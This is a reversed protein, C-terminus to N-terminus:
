SSCPRLRRQKKKKYRNGLPVKSQVNKEPSSYVHRVDYKCPRSKVVRPFRRGVRRQNLSKLLQQKRRHILGDPIESAGPVVAEVILEDKFLELAGKFSIALPSVKGCRAVDLMHLRVLNYAIFAGWIEQNIGAPTLSRLTLSKLFMRVKLEDFSTEVEWRRSYLAGLEAAPFLEQDLLSTLLRCPNGDLDHVLVVRM